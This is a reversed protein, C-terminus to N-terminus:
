GFVPVDEQMVAKQYNSNQLKFLGESPASVVRVKLGKRDELLSSGAILTSVESGNGLLTVDAKGVTEKLVYAGFEAQLAQKYSDGKSLVPLDEINQLTDFQTFRAKIPFVNSTYM